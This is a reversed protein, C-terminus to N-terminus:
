PSFFLQFLAGAFGAIFPLSLTAETKRKRWDFFKLLLVAKFGTFSVPIAIALVRAWLPELKVFYMGGEFYLVISLLILLSFLIKKALEEVKEGYRLQFLGQILLTVGFLLFFILTVPGFVNLFFLAPFILLVFIALIVAHKGSFNM